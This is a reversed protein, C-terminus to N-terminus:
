RNIKGWNECTNTRTTPKNHLKCFDNEFSEFHKCRVCVEESIREDEKSVRIMEEFESVANDIVDEGFDTIILHSVDYKLTLLKMIDNWLESKTDYYDQLDGLISEYAKWGTIPMKM